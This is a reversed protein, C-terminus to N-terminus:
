NRWFIYNFYKYNYFTSCCLNNKYNFSIRILNAILGALIFFMLIFIKPSRKFYIIELINSFEALTIYLSLFLFSIAILAIIIKLIKGGLYEAIDLIDSSPFKEFLKNMLIVILLGIVGIYILNLPSGSKTVQIISFPLNLIIRNVMVILILFIAEVKTIKNNEM